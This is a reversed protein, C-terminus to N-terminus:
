QNICFDSFVSLGLIDNKTASKASFLKAIQAVTLLPHGTHWFPHSVGAPSILTAPRRNNAPAYAGALLFFLRWTM